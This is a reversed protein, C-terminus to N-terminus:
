FGILLPKDVTDHAHQVLGPVRQVFGPQGFVPAALRDPVREAHADVFALRQQDLHLDAARAIEEFVGGGDHAVGEVAFALGPRGFVKTAEAGPDLATEDADLGVLDDVRGM